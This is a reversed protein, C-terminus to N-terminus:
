VNLIYLFRNNPLKIRRQTSFQKPFPYYYSYFVTGKRANNYVDPFLRKIVVPQWYIYVKSYNSVSHKEIRDHIINIRTTVVLNKLRQAIVFLTNLELSHVNAGKSAFYYDISGFGSGLDIVEDKEHLKMHRAISPWVTKPTCVYPIAFCSSVVLAILRYSFVSAIIVIAALMLNIVLDM